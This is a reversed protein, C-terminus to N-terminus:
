EPGQPARDSSVSAPAALRPDREEVEHLVNRGALDHLTARDRIVRDLSGLLAM